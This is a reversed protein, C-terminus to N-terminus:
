GGMGGGQMMQEIAAMQQEPPLQAIQQALEPDVKALAQLAMQVVQPNTQGTPPGTPQEQPIGAGMAPPGPPQEQQPNGMGPVIPNAGPAGPGPPQQMKQREMELIATANPFDISEMITWYGVPDVARSKLANNAADMIFRKEKPLGSDTTIYIDFEPYYWEGTSDQKILQSKDFYGFVPKNDPGKTRFPRKEDYYALLFDYYIQYLETFATQKEFIKTSIRGASNNALLELAKGSLSGGEARGQSAETVGLSDKAAQVYIGYLDKLANDYTKMDVVRLDQMPDDTEVIQTVPNALLRKLGTNKRTIIKTMGNIQKNEEMSLVKKIGEQQDFIVDPDSKGYYSKERPINYQIVFPFRKPVRVPVKATQTTGDAGQIEVEDFEVIKGQGDRKYLFKPVDRLVIDNAWTMLCVDGDKDKYWCEVVSIKGNDTTDTSDQSAGFQDLYSYEPSEGDLEARFKEGYRRCVYDLTRNEIHFLYDMDKVRYVGPQPIVNVPHPNTTEIKGRFSHGKIDPNFGVKMVCLSNKKVIRENESVIRKLDTGTSMYTLTGEVMKRREDDDVEIPDVAPLPISPDIQSEILQFTINVVQRANATNQRDTTNDRDSMYVRGSGDSVAKTGHYMADWSSADSRFSNHESLATELKKQWETLKAQQKQEATIEDVKGKIASVVKTILSM